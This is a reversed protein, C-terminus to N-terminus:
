INEGPSAPGTIMYAKHNRYRGPRGLFKPKGNLLMLLPSKALKPTEIVDGVNLKLLDQVTIRTQGLYAILELPVDQLGAVTFERAKEAGARQHKGSWSRVTSIEGMIPDIVPFPVCFNMMGSIEGMRIEFGILVVVENPPVIQVLHPNSEVRSVQFDIQKVPAWAAHLRELAQDVIGQILRREIDTLERDPAASEAMGGGLLKDIIPFVISPNIELIMEGDLPEATLLNFCTPNPLSMIFESYTLQEASSLEVEVIMRLFGSLAAALSRAFTEHLAEIARMQDKSIREPRKFDYISIGGSAQKEEAPAAALDLTGEDVASLLADVENQSLVDPM